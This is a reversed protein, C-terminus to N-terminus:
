PLVPESLRVACYLLPAHAYWVVWGGLLVCPTDNASANEYGGMGPRSLNQVQWFAAVKTEVIEWCKAQEEECFLMLAAACKPSNLTWREHAALQLSVAALEMAKASKKLEDPNSVAAYGQTKNGYQTELVATMVPNFPPSQSSNLLILKAYNVEKDEESMLQRAKVKSLKLREIVESVCAALDADDPLLAQLANTAATLKEEAEGALPLAAILRYCPAAKWDRREEGSQQDV